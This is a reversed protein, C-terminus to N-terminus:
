ERERERKRERKRKRETKREREINYLLISERIYIIYIFIYIKSVLIYETGKEHSSKPARRL